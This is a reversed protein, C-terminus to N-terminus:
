HDKFKAGKRSFLVEIFLFIGKRLNSQICYFFALERCRVAVVTYRQQTGVRSSEVPAPRAPSAPHLSVIRKYKQLGIAVYLISNYIPMMITISMFFRLSKTTMKNAARTSENKPLETKDQPPEFSSVALRKLM